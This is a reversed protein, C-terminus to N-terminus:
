LATVQETIQRVWEKKKKAALEAIDQETRKLSAAYGKATDALLKEHRDASERICKEADSRYKEELETRFRALQEGIHEDNHAAEAIGDRAQKDARIIELLKDNIM